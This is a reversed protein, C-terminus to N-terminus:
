PKPEELDKLTFGIEAQPGPLAPLKREPQDIVEAEVELPDQGYGPLVIRFPLTEGKHAVVEVPKGYAHDWIRAEIHDAKGAKLREWLAQRYDPDLVIM